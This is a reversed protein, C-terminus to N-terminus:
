GKLMTVFHRNNQSLKTIRVYVIVTVTSCSKFRSFGLSSNRTKMYAMMLCFLVGAAVHSCVSLCPACKAVNTELACFLFCFNYGHGACFQTKLQSSPTSDSGSGETILIICYGTTTTTTSTHNAHNYFFLWRYKQSTPFLCGIVQLDNHTMVIIGCWFVPICLLRLPSHM